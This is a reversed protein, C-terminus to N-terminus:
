MCVLLYQMSIYRGITTRFEIEGSSQHHTYFVINSVSFQSGLQVVVSPKHCSYYHANIKSPADIKDCGTYHCSVQTNDSLVHMGALLVLSFWVM